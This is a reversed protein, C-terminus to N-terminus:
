IKSLFLVFCFLIQFAGIWCITLGLLWIKSFFNRMKVLSSNRQLLVNSGRFHRGDQFAGSRVDWGREAGTCLVSAEWVSSLHEAGSICRWSRSWKEQLSLKVLNDLFGQIQSIGPKVEKTGPGATFFWLNAKMQLGPIYRHKLFKNQWRFLTKTFFEM